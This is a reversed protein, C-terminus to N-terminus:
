RGALAPSVQEFGQQSTQMLTDAKAQGSQRSRAEAMAAANQRDRVSAYDTQSVPLRYILPNGDQGVLVDQAGWQDPAGLQWERGGTRATRDTPVLRVTSPDVPTNSLKGTTPDVHHFAQANDKVTQTIDDRVVNATLGPFMAEPAYQMLERQGNVETVGWTHKLDQAALSRAQQLNGGTFKYYQQTLQDFQGQMLPPVAPVSTFMGPKYTPDAKLLGTLAGAQGQALKGEKWQQELDEQQAKPAAANQRALNVAVDPSTGASVAENISGVLARTKEDIAFGSARPNTEQLRALLNAAAAADQTSGGSLSARAWSVATDPIVGTRSTVDVATNGYGSSGNAVGHVMTTFLEDAAERDQHDQPDLPTRNRYAEVGYRFLDDQSAAKKEARVIGDLTAAYQQQDFAGAHYLSAATARANAPVQDSAIGTELGTIADAHQERQEVHFHELASNAQSVVRQKLDDPLNSKDLATFAAATANPGGTRWANVIGDAQNQVLLGRASEEIRQRGEQSLDSLLEDNPDNLRNLTGAPDQKAYGRAAAESITQDVSRQLRTASAGDLGLSRIASLQEVGAVQWSDPNLEVATAARNASNIVTNERQALRNAADQKMTRIQLDAGYDAIRAQLERRAIDNPAQKLAQAVRKQFDDMVYPALGGAKDVDQQNSSADTIKQESDVRLSAMAGPVYAAADQTQIKQESEGIANGLAELGPGISIGSEEAIHKRPLDEPSVEPRYIGEDPTGRGAM